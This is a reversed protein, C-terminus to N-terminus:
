DLVVLSSFVPATLPAKQRSGGGRWVCKGDLWM